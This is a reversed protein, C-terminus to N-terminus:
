HTPDCREHVGFALSERSWSVPLCVLNPASQLLEGLGNRFACPSTGAATVPCLQSPVAERVASSGSMFVRGGAFYQVGSFKMVDDSFKLCLM